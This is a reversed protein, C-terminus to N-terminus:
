GSREVYVLHDLQALAVLLVKYGLNVKPDRHVLTVEKVQPESRDEKVQLDPLVRLVRLVLNAMSGSKEMVDRQDEEVLHDQHGLQEQNARQDLLGQPVVSVKYGSKELLEPHVSKGVDAELVLFGEAEQNVLQEWIELIVPLDKTEERVQLEPHDLRGPHDQLDLLDLNGMMGLNGQYDKPEWAEKFGLHGMKVKLM